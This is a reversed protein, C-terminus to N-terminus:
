VLDSTPLPLHTYSVPIGSTVFIGGKNAGGSGSATTTDAMSPTYNDLDSRHQAYIGIKYKSYVGNKASTSDPILAVAYSNDLQVITGIDTQEKCPKVWFEITTKDTGWNIKYQDNLNYYAM